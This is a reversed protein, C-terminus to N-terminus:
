CSISTAYHITTQFNNISNELPIEFECKETVSQSTCRTLLM